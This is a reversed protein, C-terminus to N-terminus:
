VRAVVRPRRSFWMGNWHVLTEPPWGTRKSVRAVLLWRRQSKTEGDFTHSWITNRPDAAASRLFNSVSKKASSSKRTSNRPVRAHTLEVVLRGVLHNWTTQWTVRRCGSPSDRPLILSTWNGVGPDQPIIFFPKSDLIAVVKTSPDVKENYQFVTCRLDPCPQIGPRLTWLWTADGSSCRRWAVNLQKAAYIGGGPDSQLVLRLEKVLIAPALQWSSARAKRRRRQELFQRQQQQRSTMAM